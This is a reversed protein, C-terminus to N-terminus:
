RVQWVQAKSVGYTKMFDRVVQEDDTGQLSEKGCKERLVDFDDDEIRVMFIRAM